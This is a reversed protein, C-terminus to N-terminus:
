ISFFGKGPRDDLLNSAHISQFYMFFLEHITVLGECKLHLNQKKKKYEKVKEVWWIMEISYLFSFFIHTSTTSLNRENREDWKASQNTENRDQDWEDDTKIRCSTISKRFRYACLIAIMLEEKEKM